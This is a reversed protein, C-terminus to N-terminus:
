SRRELWSVFRELVVYAVFVAVCLMVVDSYWPWGDILSFLATV